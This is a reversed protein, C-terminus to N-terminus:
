DEPIRPAHWCRLAGSTGTLYWETYSGATTGGPIVVEMRMRVGYVLTGSAPVFGWITPLASGAALYVYGNYATATLPLNVVAYEYGVAPQTAWTMSGDFDATVLALHVKLTAVTPSGGGQNAVRAYGSAPTMGTHGVGLVGLDSAHLPAPLKWWRRQEVYVTPPLGSEYRIYPNYGGPAWAGDWRSYAETLEVWEAPVARSFFYADVSHGGNAVSPHVHRVWVLVASSSGETDTESDALGREDAGESVNHALVYRGNPRWRQKGALVEGAAATPVNVERACYVPGTAPRSWGSPTTAVLQALWGDPGGGPAALRAPRQANERELGDLRRRLSVLEREVTEVNPYLASGLGM